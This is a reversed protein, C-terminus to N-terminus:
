EQFTHTHARIHTPVSSPSTQISPPHKKTKNQKKTRTHHSSYRLSMHPLQVLGGEPDKNFLSLLLVPPFLLVCQFVPSILPVLSLYHRRPVEYSSYFQFKISSFFLSQCPPSSHFSAPTRRFPNKERQKEEVSRKIPM